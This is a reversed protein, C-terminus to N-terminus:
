KCFRLHPNKLLIKELDPLNRLHLILYSFSTSVYLVLDMPEEVAFVDIAERVSNKEEENLDFDALNFSLRNSVLSSNLEMERKCRESLHVTHSTFNFIYDLLLFRPSKLIGPM